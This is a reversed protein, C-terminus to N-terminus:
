FYITALGFRWYANCSIPLSASPESPPSFQGLHLLVALEWQTQITKYPNPLNQPHWCSWCISHHSMRVSTPVMRSTRIACFWMRHYIMFKYTAQCSPSDFDNKTRAFNPRITQSKRTENKKLIAPTAYRHFIRFPRDPPCKLSFLSEPPWFHPHVMKDVCFVM